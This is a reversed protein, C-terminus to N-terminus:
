DNLGRLLGVASDPPMRIGRVGGIDGQLLHVHLPLDCLRLLMDPETVESEFEIHIVQSDPAVEAVVAPLGHPVYGVFKVRQGIQYPLGDNTDSSM